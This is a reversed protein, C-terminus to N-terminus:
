FPTKMGLNKALKSQRQDFSLFIKAKLDLACAVHLLDPFRHAGRETHKRSIQEVLRFVGPWDPDCWGYIGESIDREFLALAGSVEQSTSRRQPVRLRLANRVETEQVATLLLPEALRGMYTSARADREDSFYLKLIFSSDAYASV